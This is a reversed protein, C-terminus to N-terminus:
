ILNYKEAIEVFADTLHKVQNWSLGYTNFKMEKSIGPLLGIIGREKFEERLFFGRRPHSKAVEEFCKTRVNTLPHFKPLKGLVTIGNIQKIKDIVYNAKKSEEKVQEEQTRKVITPFSAMLTILPAGYVPPCGMLTCIKNPFSKLTLNGQIKSHVMIDKNYKKKFGVLGIPGSSAMSKHGSCAIFDINSNNCDIPLIGGSYAANLLFPIDYKKCIEAIPKPDNYNGYKYDVHTLVILLPYDGKEKYIGEIVKEFDVPNLSFEPSGSNPVERIELNNSEIALYTTYHSLSDVVVIKREPYKKSLIEMIIRKSERAAATPMIKDINFYRAVDNLFDIVPPNEIKDLRGKLCNDCLSYGDGFSILAKYAESTLIGGRQIPHINIYDENARRSLNSYKEVLKNNYELKDM